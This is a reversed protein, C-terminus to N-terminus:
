AEEVPPPEDPLRSAVRLPAEVTEPPITGFDTVWVLRVDGSFDWAPEVPGAVGIARYNPSLMNDRHGPSTYWADFVDDATPYGWAINEGTWGASPYGARLMRERSTTGDQSTHSFYDNVAMDRGHRRAAKTLAPHPELVLLGNDRRLRNLLALFARREAAAATANV